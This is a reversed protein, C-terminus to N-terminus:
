KMIPKVTDGNKVLSKGQVIILSERTIEANLVEFYNKGTLGKKIQVLNVINGEVVMVYPLDQKIVIAKLPLAIVNDRSSMQLKVKAYMGAIISGDPNPLDIEVKMTKSAADLAGSTRSIKAVMNNQPLEPFSVNVDMGKKMYAAESEPVPISLRIPDNDQIEVLPQAGSSGIGSQIMSGNDVYRQTVIGSFPAKVYLMGTRTKAFESNQQLGRMKEKQANIKAQLMSLNANAIKANGEAKEVEAIPTLQPTDKYIKNLRTFIKNKTEYDVQAATVEAELSKLQAQEITESAQAEVKFQSVEPNELIAITEGKKVKDGIDKKMQKVFGSEMAHIVAKQNPMATGSIISQANFSQPQPKIVEVTQIKTGVSAERTSADRTSEQNTSPACAACCLLTFYTSLRLVTQCKRLKRSFKINCIHKYHFM